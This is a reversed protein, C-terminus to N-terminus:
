LILVVGGFIYLLFKSLCNSFDGAMFLYFTLDPSLFNIRIRSLFFLSSGQLDPDPVSNGDNIVYHLYTCYINVYIM